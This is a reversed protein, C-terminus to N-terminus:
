PPPGREKPPQKTKKRTQARIGIEDERGSEESDSKKRVAKRAAEKKEMEIQKIRDERAKKKAEPLEEEVEKFFKNREANQRKKNRSSKTEM